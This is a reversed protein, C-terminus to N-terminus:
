KERGFGFFHKLKKLIKIHFAPAYPIIRYRVIKEQALQKIFDIESVNAWFENPHDHFGFLQKDDKAVVFDITDKLRENTCLEKLRSIDKDYFLQGDINVVIDHYEDFIRHVFTSYRRTAISIVNNM